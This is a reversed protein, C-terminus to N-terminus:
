NLVETFRHRLEQAQSPHMRKPVRIGNPQMRSAVLLFLEENSVVRNPPLDLERAYEDRISFLRLFCEKGHKPMCLFRKKKLLGPTGEKPIPRSSVESNQREYEDSLGEEELRKFLEEKLTFLHLVDAAAYELADADIPRSMWDYQQFKKKPKEEIHLVSSLVSALGKKQFDLLVVAPMLDCVENFHIGYRRYLLTRDSSCDYVIKRFSGSEFIERVLALDVVLPDVIALVEGDWVQVLCLHEGYRHLNFEGEIDVAIERVGRAKIDDLWAATAQDNDLFRIHENM